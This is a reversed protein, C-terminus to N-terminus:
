PRKSIVLSNPLPLVNLATNGLDLITRLVAGISYPMLKPLLFARIKESGRKKIQHSFLKYCSKKLGATIRKKLM